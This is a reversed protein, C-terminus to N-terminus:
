EAMELAGRIDLKDAIEQYVDEAEAVEFGDSDELLPFRLKVLRAGNLFALAQGKPLNMIAQPSILPEHAEVTIQAKTMTSFRNSKGSDDGTEMDDSEGLTKGTNSVNGSVDLGLLDCSDLSDTLYEATDLTKVRMMFVSNFNGLVIRAKAADGDFAGEIDSLTQSYGFMRVGAGAARNLLPIFEDGMMSQMEDAHLWIPVVDTARAEEMGKNVGHKYIEGCTSVLDAFFQNSVAEAVVNDTMSDFGAYFIGKRQIIKKWTFIPRNDTVDSYDPSLLEAIRGSTLKTLLPILSATIKNYYNVDNRMASRLGELVQNTLHPNQEYFDNAMKDLVITMHDRGALAGVKLKVEVDEGKANKKFKPTMAGALDQEFNPNDQKLRYKVYRIYLGELNEINSKMKKFDPKEGMDILASACLLLFRWAFDRFVQSDGGGSMQESIRGAISAIRSFNAISNYKASIDPMGLSFIYFEDDRGCRKAEAWMRALLEIDGKPDLCGVVGDNREIDQSIMFELFRTKGVRSQGFMVAHGNREDLTIHQDEEHEHGVAHYVANGGVPLLPRLPNKIPGWKYSSTAKEVALAVRSVKLGKAKRLSVKTEFRRCQKHLKSLRYYKKLNPKKADWTRQACQEDWEFGRGIWTAKKTQPIESTKMFFPDIMNLGSQYKKIEIAEVLRKFSMAVLLTVIGVQWHYPIGILQGWMVVILTSVANYALTRLEFLPRLSGDLMKETSM